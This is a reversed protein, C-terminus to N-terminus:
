FSPGPHYFELEVEHEGIESRDESVCSNHLSSGAVMSGASRSQLGGIAGSSFANMGKVTEYPLYLGLTIRGCPERSLNYM